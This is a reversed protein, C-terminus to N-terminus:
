MQFFSCSSQLAEDVDAGVREQVPAWGAARSAASSGHIFGNSGAEEEPEKGRVAKKIRNSSSSLTVSVHSCLEFEDGM